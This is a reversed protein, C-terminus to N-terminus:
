FGAGAQPQSTALKDEVIVAEFKPASNTGGLITVTYIKDPEFTVLPISLAVTKKQDNPRVELTTTMPEIENYMSESQFNLGSVLTKNQEKSLLSIETLHPAANIVRLKVKGHAPLTFNDNFVVLNAGTKDSDNPPMAVLTYHKGAQLNEKNKALPIALDKGAAYAIFAGADAPVERYPTVTKYEIDTFAKNEGALLDTNTTPLADIVRVLAMEHQSAQKAPVAESSAGNDPTSIVPENRSAERSCAAVFMLAMLAMLMALMRTSRLWINKRM